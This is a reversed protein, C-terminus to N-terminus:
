LWRYDLALIEEKDSKLNFYVTLEHSQKDRVIIGFVKLVSVDGITTFQFGFPQFKNINGYQPDAKELNQVVGKKDYSFLDEPNMFDELQKFNKEKITDVLKLIFPAKQDVLELDATAYEHEISGAETIIKGVIHSYNKREEPNLNRYFLYALNSTILVPKDAYKTIFKSKRLELKFYKRDASNDTSKVFGVSYECEGGFFGLIDKIGKDENDTISVLNSLVGTSKEGDHKKLV